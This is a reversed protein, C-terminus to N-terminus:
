PKPIIDLEPQLGMLFAEIPICAIEGVKLREKGM